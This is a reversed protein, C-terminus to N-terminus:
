RASSELWIDFDKDLYAHIPLDEALLAADVEGADGNQQSNHWYNVTLLGLVMAIIPLWLHNSHRQSSNNRWHGAWALGFLPERAGYNALAARRAAQLRTITRPGIQTLGQDLHQAIKKALDQENM